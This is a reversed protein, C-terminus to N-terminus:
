LFNNLWFHFLHFLLTSLPFCSIWFNVFLKKIQEAQLFEKKHMFFVLFSSQVHFIPFDREIKWEHLCPRPSVVLNFHNSACNEMDIRAHKSFICLEIQPNFFISIKQFKRFKKLKHFKFNSSLIWPREFFDKKGNFQIQSLIVFGDVDFFFISQKSHPHFNESKWMKEVNESSFLNEDWFFLNEM